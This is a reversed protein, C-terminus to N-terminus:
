RKVHQMSLNFLHNPHVNKNNHTFPWTVVNSPLNVLDLNDSSFLNHLATKQWRNTPLKKKRSM